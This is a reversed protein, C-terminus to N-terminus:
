DQTRTTGHQTMVEVLTDAPMTEKSQNKLTMEKLNPDIELNPTHDIAVEPVEMSRIQTAEVIAHAVKTTGLNIEAEVKLSRNQTCKM